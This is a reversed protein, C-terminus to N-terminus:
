LWPRKFGGFYLGAIVTIAAIVFMVQGTTLMSILLYPLTFLSCM